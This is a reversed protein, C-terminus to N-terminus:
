ARPDDLLTRVNAVGRAAERDTLIMANPHLRVASAPTAPSIPGLMVASIASQKSKGTAILILSRASMITAIGQTIASSPVSDLSPFFRANDRRTTAELEVVRTTSTFPTGPENFGIHGNRGVGLIQIDLGGRRRIEDDYGDAAEDLGVSNAHPGRIRDASVGLREGFIERITAVYSRPDAPDLGVYEDLLYIWAQSLDAGRRALEEYTALPTTGTAVGIVLEPDCVLQHEILDAATRACGQVDDHIRLDVQTAALASQRGILERLGWPAASKAGFQGIARVVDRDPLARAVREVLEAYRDAIGGGVVIVGDSAAEERRLAAAIASGARDISEPDLPKPLAWGAAVTELCGDKGCRCRRAGYGRDHGFLGSTLVDGNHLVAGGVGTGVGVFV